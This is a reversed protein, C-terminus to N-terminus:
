ARREASSISAAMAASLLAHSQDVEVSAQHNVQGFTMRPPAVSDGLGYGLGLFSAKADRRQHFAFAQDRRDLTAIRDQLTGIGLQELLERWKVHGLRHVQLRRLETAVETQPGRICQMQGTRLVM